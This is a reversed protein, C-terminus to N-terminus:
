VGPFFLEKLCEPWKLNKIQLLFVLVFSFRMNRLTHCETNEFKGKEHLCSGKRPIMVGSLRLDM